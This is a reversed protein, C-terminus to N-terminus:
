IKGCFERLLSVVIDKGTFARPYPISSKVHTGRPVKDRLRVALHSLLSFNVFRDPDPDDSESDFYDDDDEEEQDGLPPGPAGSYVSPRARALSDASGGQFGGSGSDSHGHSYKLASPGASPFGYSGERSLM